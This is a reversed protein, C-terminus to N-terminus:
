LSSDISDASRVMRNKDPPRGYKFPKQVFTKLVQDLTSIPEQECYHRKIGLFKCRMPNFVYLQPIYDRSHLREQKHLKDINRKAYPIIHDQPGDQLRYTSPM